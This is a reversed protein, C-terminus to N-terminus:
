AASRCDPWLNAVLGAAAPVGGPLQPSLFSNERSLILCSKIRLLAAKHIFSLFGKPLTPSVESLSKSITYYPYISYIYFGGAIGTLSSKPPVSLVGVGVDFSM